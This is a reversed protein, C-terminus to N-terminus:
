IQARRSRKAEEKGDEGGRSMPEFSRRRCRLIGQSVRAAGPSVDGHQVARGSCTPPFLDGRLLLRRSGTGGFSVPILWLWPQERGRSSGRGAASAEASAGARVWARVCLRSCVCGAGPPRHPWAPETHAREAREVNSCFCSGPSCAQAPWGNNRLGRRDSSSTNFEAERRERQARVLVHDIATRPPFIACRTDGARCSCAASDWALAGCRQWCERVWLGSRRWAVVVWLRTSVLLLTAAVRAPAPREGAKAPAVRHDSGLSREFSQWLKGLSSLCTCCENNQAM